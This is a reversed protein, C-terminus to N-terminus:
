LDCFCVHKYECKYHINAMTKRILVDDFLKSDFDAVFAGTSPKGLFSGGIKLFIRM